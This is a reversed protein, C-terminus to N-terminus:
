GMLYPRVGDLAKEYHQQYTRCVNGVITRKNECNKCFSPAYGKENYLLRYMQDCFSCHRERTSSRKILFKEALKRNHSPKAPSTEM